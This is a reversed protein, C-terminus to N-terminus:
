VDIIDTISIHRVSSEIQGELATQALELTIERGTTTAVPVRLRIFYNLAERIQLSLQFQYIGFDNDCKASM